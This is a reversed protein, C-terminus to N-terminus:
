QGRISFHRISNWGPGPRCAATPPPVPPHPGTCLGGHELISVRTTNLCKGGQAVGRERHGRRECSGGRRRWPASNPHLVYICKGKQRSNAGTGTRRGPANDDRYLESHPGNEALKPAREAATRGALGWAHVGIPWSSFFCFLFIPQSLINARFPGLFM